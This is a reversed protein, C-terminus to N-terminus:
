GGIQVGLGYTELENKIRNLEKDSPTALQNAFRYPRNLRPYKGEGLRNYPLINVKNINQLSSSIFTGLSKINTKTDTVGPIIPIRIIVSEKESDLYKLNTLISKNSVGTYAQHKEDDIFKLDYLFLDLKGLMSKMTKLSSFGTTDITTNINENTCQNLLAVLFEPQMLPEGGSVTVGGGSEDYFIIDKRIEDMLESINVSKGILETEGSNPHLITEPDPNQSEPNHCWWCNLPCGKFFITTRIGPGDHVAFRKIDFITGTRM